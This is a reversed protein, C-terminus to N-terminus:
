SDTWGMEKAYERTASFTRATGQLYAAASALIWFALYDTFVCQEGLETLLTVPDM